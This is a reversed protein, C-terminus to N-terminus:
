VFHDSEPVPRWIDEQPRCLIRRLNVHPIDDREGLKMNVKVYSWEASSESETESEEGLPTPQM